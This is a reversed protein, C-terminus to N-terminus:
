ELELREKLARLEDEVEMSRLRQEVNADPLARKRLAELEDEIDAGQGRAEEGDPRINQLLRELVDHHHAARKDAEFALEEDGRQRAINARQRWAESRDRVETAARVAEGLREPAVGQGKEHAVSIRELSAPLGATERLLEVTGDLAERLLDAIRDKPSEVREDHARRLLSEYRQPELSLDIDVALTALSEVARGSESAVLGSAFVSEREGRPPAALLPVAVARARALERPTARGLILHALGWCRAAELGAPVLSASLGYAPASRRLEKAQKPDEVEFIVELEARVLNLQVMLQSLEHPAFADATIILVHAKSSLSAAERARPARKVPQYAEEIPIGTVRVDRRGAGATSAAWNDIVALLDASARSWGAGVQPERVIGVRLPRPGGRRALAALAEIDKPSSTLVVAPALAASRLEDLWSERQVEDNIVSRLLREAIGGEGERPREKVVVSAAESAGARLADAFHRDLEDDPDVLVWATKTEAM